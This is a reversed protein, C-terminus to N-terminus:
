IPGAGSVRFGFRLGVFGASNFDPEKKFMDHGVFFNLPSLLRLFQIGFM